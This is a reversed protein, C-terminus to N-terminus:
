ITKPVQFFGDSQMPANQLLEERSIMKVSVDERLVNCLDLVAYLPEVHDTDISSFAVFSELLMDAINSIQQRETDPLDLKAMAEYDKINEM